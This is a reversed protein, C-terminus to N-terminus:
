LNKNEFIQIEKLIDPFGVPKCLYRDAGAELGEAIEESQAKASLIIVPIHKTREDSRLRKCVEIGNLKPLKVDLLIIDPLHSFAQTLASEGDEAIFVAYGLKSFKRKLYTHIPQEDDV